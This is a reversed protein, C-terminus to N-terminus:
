GIAAGLDRGLRLQDVDLNVANRVLDRVPDVLGPMCAGARTVSSRDRPDLRALAREAVGAAVRVVEVPGRGSPATELAVIVDRASGGTALGSLGAPDADDVIVAATKTGGIDIGLRM